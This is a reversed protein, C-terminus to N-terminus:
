LYNVYRRPAGYVGLWHQILFTMHFGITLLWFHIKGIGEHLKYGFMKPWWFYFGAFMEFVVTGAMVYHFHAVVFYTDSIHFDLVPSSLIVGTLGGFISTPLFGLPLLRPTGYTPSGRWRSGAWNCSNVGTPCAILMTMFAFFDLMVAGTTCMHHTWVTVS